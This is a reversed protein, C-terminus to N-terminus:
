MKKEAYTNVAKNMVISVTLLAMHCATVLLVSEIPVIDSLPGYVVMSLPMFVSPIMVVVSFVRGMYEPDVERQMITILPPDFLPMAAGCIVMVALYLAFDSVIGLALTTLTFVAFSAKLLNTEKAKKGFFGVLFGGVIMGSSFCAELVTLYWVDNGFSRSVQLPTLFALPSVLIYFFSLYLFLTRILPHSAIYRLGTRIKVFSSEDDPQTEPHYIRKVFFLLLLVAFAATIVDIFFIYFLPAISLLFGSAVPSAVNIVSQFSSNYGNVTLLEESPVIEPVFANVAPRQIGGGVARVASAIFLLYLHTYGMAYVLALILTSVAVLSDSILIIKKRDYRDAWVGAFPSIFFTPLFGCLISITMMLGSQTTMTIHWMIAYQVLSSGFLSINQGLLFIIIQKKWEIDKSYAMM